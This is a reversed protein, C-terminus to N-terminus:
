AWVIASINGTGDTAVTYTATLASDESTLVETGTGGGTITANGATVEIRKISDLYSHGFVETGSGLATIVAAGITLGLAADTPDYAVPYVNVTQSIAGSLVMTFAVHDGNTEAQAPAYSWQGNGEHVSAGAGTGQAGGDITYYVAPSGATVDTGDTSSVLQFAVFQSAVNKRM